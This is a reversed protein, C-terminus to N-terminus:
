NSIFYRLWIDETPKINRKLLNFNCEEDTLV